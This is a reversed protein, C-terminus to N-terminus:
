AVDTSTDARWFLLSAQRGTGVFVCFVCTQTSVLECGLSALEEQVRVLQRRHEACQADLVADAAPSRGRQRSRRVVLENLATTREAVERGISALLPRLAALRQEGSPAAQQISTTMQGAM